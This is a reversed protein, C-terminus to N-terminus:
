ESEFVGTKAASAFDAAQTEILCTAPDHDAPNKGKKM